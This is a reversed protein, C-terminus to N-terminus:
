QVVCKLTQIEGTQQIIQVLYIGSNLNTTLSQETNQIEVVAQGRLDFIKISCRESIGEIHLSNNESWLYINSSLIENVANPVYSLKNDMWKIRNRVYNKVNDVEKTYTGRAVPNMHVKTNLIDWRKFNLNQSQDIEAAYNDIVGILSEESIIGKNRYYAYTDKLETMLQSDLFLRSVLDRVGNATSGTSAYIWNSNNNIPYTRYDNEFAIDFDWVPGFYFKDNDRMKYIYTSWYTDTNGSIEGVLFHRLFTGTDIYKRYGTILNRFDSTYVTKEMLNFHSKIYQSQAYVIEDDKPYKITVPIGNTGSTFWSTEQNAYADMEVLYGGSLQSGSVDTTKMKEVEVRNTAVEIQDCLQYTGKYEGNLFVDVPKGAPTYPIQLRKSIDFALLNRMLTKDGYNNILTWSKEVAPLGLLSAKKFLKMRYPKKPFNWSFNGRGKIELSDTYIKTGNESIVSVIGKVYNERDVIDQANTTHIIISPINTIQSLQSQNGEGKFGWFELETFNCRQNSPSVYRIYRFGKSCNINQENLVAQTPLVNIIHIPIADGFDPNNAGEFVGLRMAAPQFSRPCYAVKTIIHKEGLDLGVWGGSPQCTAFISNLDGDFANKITNVTSSCRNLDYNFSESSGITKGSLKISNQTYLQTFCFFTLVLLIPFKKM